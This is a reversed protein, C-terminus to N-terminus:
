LTLATARKCFFLPACEPRWYLQAALQLLQAAVIVVQVAELNCFVRALSAHTVSFMYRFFGVTVSSSVRMLNRRKTMFLCGSSSLTQMAADTERAACYYNTHMRTYDRMDTLRSM